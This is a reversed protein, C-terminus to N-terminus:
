RGFHHSSRVNTREKILEQDLDTGFAEDVVNKVNEIHEKQTYIGLRWQERNAVELASIISSAERLPKTKSGEIVCTGSESISPKDPIDLLVKESSIGAKEALESELSRIAEWSSDLIPEPVLDIGIWVARKYLNRRNLRSILDATAENDRLKSVLDYDDMQRLDTPLIINETVLKEAARLLMTESVRTAPHHYVTPNMFTRATLMNEAAQKNGEGIVLKSDNFTLSHILHEHDITGYPVGTHHADRALYDMRDVDLEGSILQGYKGKGAILETVYSPDINHQLLVENVQGTELIENVDDHGKNLYHEILPETNHSFPGHGIDHLIAAARISDADYEEIDMRDIAQNALYYVGLSHEFRTHNASPYVLSTNGLQRIRRLRQVEPTDILDRAVGRIDIHGHIGDKITIM